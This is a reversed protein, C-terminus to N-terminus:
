VSEMHSNGKSFGHSFSQEAYKRNMSCKANEM